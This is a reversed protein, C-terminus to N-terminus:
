LSFARSSVMLSLWCRARFKALWFCRWCSTWNGRWGPWSVILGRWACGLMVITDDWASVNLWINALWSLGDCTWVCDKWITAVVQLGCVSMNFSWLGWVKIAWGHYALDIKSPLKSNFKNIKKQKFFAVDGIIGNLRYNQALYSIRYDLLINMLSM